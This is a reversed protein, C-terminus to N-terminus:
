PGSRLCTSKPAAALSIIISNEPNQIKQFYQSFPTINDPIHYCRELLSVNRKTATGAQLKVSIIKYLM